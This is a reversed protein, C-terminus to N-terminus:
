IIQKILWNFAADLAGLYAAMVAVFIITVVSAQVLTDRDPWQVKKLEAWCSALFGMVPGRKKEPQAQTTQKHADRKRAEQRERREREKRERRSEKRPKEEQVEAPPAGVDARSPAPSAPAEPTAPAEPAAAEHTHEGYEETRAGTEMVAEIEAVDGSVPTQTDHQARAEEERESAPTVGAQREREAQAQRRAREAKRQARTKAM